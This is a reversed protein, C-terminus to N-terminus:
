RIQTAISLWGSANVTTLRSLFVNALLWVSYLNQNVEGGGYMCSLEAAHM